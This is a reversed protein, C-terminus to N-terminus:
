YGFYHKYGYDYSYWFDKHTIPKYTANSYMIGKDEIFNGIYTLNEYKDLFCLKSKCTDNLLKQAHKNLYFSKDLEYLVSVFDKIFHQTDSLNGGKVYDHIVGNHVMGLNTRTKTARLQDINNTIPFPHTTKKDNQGSTGIRFHIVLAKDKLNNGYKFKLEQIRKYLANFTMFGKEIVVSKNDVYMIGAGDHNREFCTKLTAKTPLDVGKAKSVIICM